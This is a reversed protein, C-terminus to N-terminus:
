EMQRPARSSPVPSSSITLAASLGNPAGHQPYTILFYSCTLGREEKVGLSYTDVPVCMMDPVASTTSCRNVSAVDRPLRAHVVSTRTSLLPQRELTLPSSLWLLAQPSNCSNNKKTLICLSGQQAQHYNNQTRSCSCQGVIHAFIKM